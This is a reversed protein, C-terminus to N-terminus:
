RRPLVVRLTARVVDARALAAAVGSAWLPGVGGAGGPSGAFVTSPLPAAPPATVQGFGVGGCMVALAFGVFIKRVAGGTQRVWRLCHYLWWCCEVASGAGNGEVDVGRMGCGQM